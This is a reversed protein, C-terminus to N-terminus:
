PTEKLAVDIRAFEDEAEQKQMRKGLVICAGAEQTEDDEIEHWRGEALVRLLRSTRQSAEPTSHDFTVVYQFSKYSEGLPKPKEHTCGVLILGMVLLVNKM